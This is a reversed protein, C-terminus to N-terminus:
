FTTRSSRSLSQDPTPNNTTVQKSIAPNQHKPCRFGAIENQPNFSAAPAANSSLHYRGGGTQSSRPNESGLGESLLNESSGPSGEGGVCSRPCSPGCNTAARIDRLLAVPDLSICIEQLRARVADSTRPDATLRQHPTTPASYSKQGRAGDRQKGILKFPPRFFNLFLRVSRYLEALM